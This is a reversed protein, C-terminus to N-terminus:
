GQLIPGAVGELFRVDDFMTLRSPHRKPLKLLAAVQVAVATIEVAPIGLPLIKEGALIRDWKCRIFVQAAFWNEQWVVVRDSKELDREQDKASEIDAETAGFLRM